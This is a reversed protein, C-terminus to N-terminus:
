RSSAQGDIRLTVPGLLGSHRQPSYITTTPSSADLLPAITNLVLLEIENAGTRVLGTVDFTWPGCVRVGAPRGNVTAEVSGRVRGVDLVARAGAAGDPLEVTRRYVVGGSYAELGLEAWDGAELTGPGTEFTVPGDWLGGGARGAAGDVRLVCTRPGRGAGDLAVAGDCVPLEEGDVFCRVDGAVPLRARVAGPPLAFRFWALSGEASALSRLRVVVGDDDRTGDVIAADPLPHPRRVAVQHRPDFWQDRTLRPPGSAEGSAVTWGAGSCRTLREGGTGEVVADVLIARAAGDGQVDVRLENDGERLGSLEYRVIWPMMSAADEYYGGAGQGGLLTGNLALTVRGAGGVHVFGGAPPFPVTLTARYSPSQRLGEPPLLWEPRRYADADRVVAWSARLPMGPPTLAPPEEPACLRLELVNAGARARLPVLMHYGGPDPALAVGNWWAQKAAPSGVALQGDVDDDLMVIARVVVGAGPDLPELHLFEEPVFGKPGNFFHGPDKEIGWRESYAVPAWGDALPARGAAISEVEAPTLPAPLEAAPAPASALAHPGFTTRVREWAGGRGPAQWGERLGIDQADSRHELVWAQPPPAGPHPPLALDGWTNDLAPVLRSEWPGDLQVTMASTPRLDTM